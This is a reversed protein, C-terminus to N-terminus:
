DDPYYTDVVLIINKPMANYVLYALYTIFQLDYPRMTGTQSRFHAIVSTNKYFHIFRLCPLDGPYRGDVTSYIARTEKDNELEKRIRTIQKEKRWVYGPFYDYKKIVEPDPMVPLFLSRDFDCKGTPHKVGLEASLNEAM